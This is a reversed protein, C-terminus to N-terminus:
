RRQGQYFVWVESSRFILLTLVLIIIFLVWALSSAYGMKNYEFANRYLYLVYFLSSRGPGGDTMVFAPTFVQFSGIIGMVLRLFIIPTMMPITIHILKRWGNAGDIMAAEYLETPIAQLGALYIVMNAGAVGWMAMILLAPIVWQQSSLWFPGDIGIWSLAVNLIGYEGNFVWKWLRAVAVGSIVAPLYYITRWAQIGKIKQNMLLAISFGSFLGAPIGVGSYYATVKLSQWFNDDKLLRTYNALGVWKPPALLPWKTFSIVLSAILPGATFVLLGVLWPSICLYATLEERRTQTNMRAM